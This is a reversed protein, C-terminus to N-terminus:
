FFVKCLYEGRHSPMNCIHVMIVILMNLSNNARQKHMHFEQKTSDSQCPLPFKLIVTRFHEGTYSQTVHVHVLVM